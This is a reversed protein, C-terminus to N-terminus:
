PTEGIPSLGLCSPHFILMFSLLIFGRGSVFSRSRDPIRPFPARASLIRYQGEERSYTTRRPGQVEYVGYGAAMAQAVCM